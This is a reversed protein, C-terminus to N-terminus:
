GLKVCVNGLFSLPQLKEDWDPNERASAASPDWPSPEDRQSEPTFCFDRKKHNKKTFRKSKKCRTKTLQLKKNFFFFFGVWCFGSIGAPRTTIGYVKIFM